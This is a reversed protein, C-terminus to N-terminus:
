IRKEYKVPNRGERRRYSLERYIKANEMFSYAETKVLYFGMERYKNEFKKVLSKKIEPTKGWVYDLFCSSVGICGVVFGTVEGELSVIGIFDTKKIEKKLNELRAHEKLKKLMHEPFGYDSNSIERIMIKSIEKLHKEGIDRFFPFNIVVLIRPTPACFATTTVRSIWLSM